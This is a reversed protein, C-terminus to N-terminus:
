QAAGPLAERGIDASSHDARKCGGQRGQHGAKKGIFASRKLESRCGGDDPRRDVRDTQSGAKPQWLRIWLRNLFLDLRSIRSSAYIRRQSILLRPISQWEQRALYLAQM